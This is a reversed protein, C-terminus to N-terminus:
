PGREERKSNPQRVLVPKEAKPITAHPKLDVDYGTYGMDHVYLM